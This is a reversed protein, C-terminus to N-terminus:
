INKIEQILCGYVILFQATIYLSMILFRSAEFPYSFKNIAILTDSFTFLAAGVFVLTFSVTSVNGRRNLAMVTMFLIVTAYVIVPITMEDLDPLLFWILGIGYILFPIALIPQKMVVSQTKKISTFAIIYFIHAILFSILGLMFFSDNYAILQLLIDGGWSFFLAFLILYSFKNLTQKMGLFFYLALFPMILAKTFLMLFEINLYHFVIFLVGVIFYLVAILKLKM